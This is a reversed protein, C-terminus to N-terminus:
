FDSPCILNQLFRQKALLFYCYNKDLEEPTKWQVSYLFLFIYRSDSLNSYIVNKQLKMVFRLLLDKTDSQFCETINETAYECYLATCRPMSSCTMIEEVVRWSNLIKNKIIIETQTRHKITWHQDVRLTSPM